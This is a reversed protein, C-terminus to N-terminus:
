NNNDKIHVVRQIRITLLISNADMKHITTMSAVNTANRYMYKSLMYALVVVQSSVHM